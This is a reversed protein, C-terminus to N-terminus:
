RCLLPSKIRLNRTRIGLPASQSSSGTLALWHQFLKITCFTRALFEMQHVLVARENSRDERSGGPQFRGREGRPLATGPAVIATVSRQRRWRCRNGRCDRHWAATSGPPRSRSRRGAHWRRSASDVSSAPATHSAASVKPPSIRPAKRPLVNAKMVRAFM